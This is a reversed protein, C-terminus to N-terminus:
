RVEQKEDVKLTKLVLWLKDIAEDYVGTTSCAEVTFTDPNSKSPIIKFLVADKPEVLTKKQEEKVIVVEAQTNGKRVLYCVDTASFSRRDPHLDEYDFLGHSDRGWTFAKLALSSIFM